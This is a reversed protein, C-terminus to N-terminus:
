QLSWNKSPWMSCSSWSSNVV